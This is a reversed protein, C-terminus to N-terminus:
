PRTFIVFKREGAARPLSITPSEAMDLHLKAAERASAERNEDAAAPTAYFVIKGGPAALARCDRLLRAPPGVARLLVAHYTGAHEPRRALERARGAVARGNTLGLSEIQGRVFDIKKGRSDIGTITLRANAWALPLLPFGAGCGVDAVRLAEAPLDPVAIGVALSDAVHLLWFEEEGTNRTLNTTRNARALDARLQEMASLDALREAPVGCDRLFRILENPEM